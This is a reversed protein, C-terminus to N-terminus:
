RPRKWRGVLKDRPVGFPNVRVAVADQITMAKEASL